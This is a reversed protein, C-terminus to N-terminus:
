EDNKELDYPEMKAMENMSGYIQDRLNALGRERDEDTAAFAVEGIAGSIRNRLDEIDRSERDRKARESEIVAIVGIEDLGPASSQKAELKAIRAELADIRQSYVAERHYAGDQRAVMQEIRAEVYGRM